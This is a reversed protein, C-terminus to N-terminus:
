AVLAQLGQESSPRQNDLSAYLKLAQMLNHMPPACGTTRADDAGTGLVNPAILAALVGIIVLVVMLRILHLGPLADAHTAPPPVPHIMTVLCDTPNCRAMGHM